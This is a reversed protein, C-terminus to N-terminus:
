RAKVDRLQLSFDHLCLLMHGAVVTTEKFSAWVIVIRSRLCDLFSWVFVENVGGGAM